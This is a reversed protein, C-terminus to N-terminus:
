LNTSILEDFSDESAELMDCRVKPAIGANNVLLDIHGFQTWVFEVLTARNASSAIDSQLMVAGTEAHLSDAAAKSGRYTGIVQHTRTLEVAIARGIGRSAGTILAVPRPDPM